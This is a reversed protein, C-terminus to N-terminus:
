VEIDLGDYDRLIKLEKDTIRFYYNCSKNCKGHAKVISHIYKYTYYTIKLSPQMPFDLDIFPNEYRSMIIIHLNKKSGHQEVMKRYTQANIQLSNNNYDILILIQQLNQGYRIVNLLHDESSIGECSDLQLYTLEKLQEVMCLLDLHTMYVIQIKLTKMKSLQSIAKANERTFPSQDIWSYGGRIDLFTLTANGGLRNLMSMDVQDLRGFIMKLQKLSHFRALQSTSSPVITLSEITEPISDQIYDLIHSFGESRMPIVELRKLQKNQELFLKLGKTAWSKSGRIKLQELKPCKQNRLGRYTIHADILELEVLERCQVLWRISVVCRHLTLKQVPVSPSQKDVLTVNHIELCEGLSGFHRLYDKLEQVTDVKCACTKWKSAYVDRAIEQLRNCAGAISCLDKFELQVLIKEFCDYNLNLLEPHKQVAVPVTLRIRKNAIFHTQPPVNHIGHSFSVIALRNVEGEHIEVRVVDGFKAFYHWIAAPTIQFFDFYFLGYRFKEWIM